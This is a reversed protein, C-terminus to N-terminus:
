DFHRALTGLSTQVDVDADANTRTEQVCDWLMCTLLMSASCTHFDTRESHPGEGFRGGQMVKGDVVGKESVAIGACEGDFAWKHMAVWANGRERRETRSYNRVAVRVRGVMM